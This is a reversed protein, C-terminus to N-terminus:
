DLQVSAVKGDTDVICSTPKGAVNLEVQFSKSDLKPSSTPLAKGSDVGRAKAAEGASPRGPHNGAPPSQALGFSAGMRLDLAAHRAHQRGDARNTLWKEGL